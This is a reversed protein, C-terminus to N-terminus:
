VEVLEGSDPDNDVTIPTMPYRGTGPNEMQMVPDSPPDGYGQLRVDYNDYLITGSEGDSGRWGRRMAM